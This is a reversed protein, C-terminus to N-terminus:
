FLYKLSLQTQTSGTALEIDDLDGKASIILIQPGVLVSGLNYLVGGGLIYGFSIIKSSSVNVVQITTDIYALGALSYVDWESNGEM